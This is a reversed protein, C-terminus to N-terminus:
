RRRPCVVDAPLVHAPVGCVLLLPLGHCAGESALHVVHVGGSMKVGALVRQLNGLVNVSSLGAKVDIALPKSRGIGTFPTSRGSPGFRSPWGQVVYKGPPVGNFSIQDNAEIPRLEVWVGDTAFHDDHVLTVHNQLQEWTPLAAGGKAPQIEVLYTEPRRSGTFDVTVRVQALKVLSLVDPAVIRAHLHDVLDVDARAHDDALEALGFTLVAGEMVLERAKQRLEDAEVVVDVQRQRLRVRGEGPASPLGGVSRLRRLIVKVLGSSALAHLEFTEPANAHGTKEANRWNNTAFSSPLRRKLVLAISSNSSFFASNDDVTWVVKSFLPRSTCCTPLAVSAQIRKSCWTWISIM